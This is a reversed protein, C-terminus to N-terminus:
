ADQVVIIAKSEILKKIEAEAQERTEGYLMRRSEIWSSEAHVVGPSAAYALRQM